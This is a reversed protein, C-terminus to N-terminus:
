DPTVLRRIFSVRRIIAISIMSALICQVFGRARGSKYSM